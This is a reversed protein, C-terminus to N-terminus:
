DIFQLEYTKPDYLGLVVTEGNRTAEARHQESLLVSRVTRLTLANSSIALIMRTGNKGGIGNVHGTGNHCIAYDVSARGTRSLPRGENLRAFDFTVGFLGNPLESVIVQPENYRGLEYPDHVVVAAAYHRNLNRGEEMALSLNEITERTIMSM